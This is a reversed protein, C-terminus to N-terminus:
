DEKNLQGMVFQMAGEPNNTLAIYQEGETKAVKVGVRDADEKLDVYNSAVQPALIVLDFNKLIDRHEGYCGASAKIPVDYKKAAKRLSNRLLASTGGGACLVLVNIEKNLSESANLLTEKEEQVQEIEAGEKLEEAKSREQELIQDDYVKFFPYYIIFDVVLLLPALVFALKSFATGMILGIPAPTPWPLEYVFANMSLTQVFFKFLCANVIPTLIFPIFFVPNLILPAGFLIPENVCFSTPIFAARGVARNRKSKSLLMFMYPVVFTAGTGGLNVIFSCFPGTLALNVHQGNKYLALNAALNAYMIATIPPNVISPGHIGIFWFFATAGAIVALGSYGDAATFLPQFVNIVAQAFNVKIVLRTLQDLGLAVLVTAGFPLIDVFAQAINPPVEAPMRITVENKIFLNYVNVSIFASIFSALLGSSGLHMTSLGDKVPDASLLMFGCISALMTSIYNIQNSLPLDRNFSDTLAKATTGAVLLGLFGMTYTYPKYLLAEIDKPWHYGWINPINALLMFISSFLVVPMNQVFGDKVAQLYRNRSIKQFLPQAKEIYAVLKEM